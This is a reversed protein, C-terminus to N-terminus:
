EGRLYLDHCHLCTTMLAGFSEALRPGDRRAATEVLRKAEVRLAEQHQFFREPLAVNLEDGVLPRALTPEDFIAGAARAIGDYDLVVVRSVLETLQEGHRKMKSKVVARLAPSLREPTAMEPGPAITRSPRLILAIAIAGAVLTSTGLIFRHDLKM